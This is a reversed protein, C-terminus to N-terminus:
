EFSFREYSMMLIRMLDSIKFFVYQQHHVDYFGKQYMAITDSKSTQWSDNNFGFMADIFPVVWKAGLQTKLYEPFLEKQWRRIIGRLNETMVFMYLRRFGEWELLM